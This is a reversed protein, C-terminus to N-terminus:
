SVAALTLRVVSETFHVGDGKRTREEIGLARVNVTRGALDYDIDRYGIVAGTRALARLTQLMQEGTRADVSGDRVILRDTCRLELEWTEQKPLDRVRAGDAWVGLLELAAFASAPTWTVRVSLRAADVGIGANLPQVIQGATTGAAIATIGAATWVQGDDTSSEILMSGGPNAPARTGLPYLGVAWDVTVATWTKMSDGQGADLPGVMVSGAARPSAAYGRLPLEWRSVVATGANLSVLTGDGLLGNTGILTGFAAGSAPALVFCRVGDCGWVQRAALAPDAVAFCLLEGAVTMGLLQGRPAGAVPLLRRGDWRHLMGAYWTYVDGGFGQLCSFDDPAGGGRGDFMLSVTGGFTAPSGSWQGALEWLAHQTGILMVGGGSARGPWATAARVESDLEWDTWTAGGDVSGSIKTYRGSVTGVKSRWLGSAYGWVIGANAAPTNAVAGGTVYSSMSAAATTALYLAGGLVAMGRITGGAVGVPTIGTLQGSANVTGAYLTAGQSLYLTGNYVIGRANGDWLAAGLTGAVSLQQERPALV